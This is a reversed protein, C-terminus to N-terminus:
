SRRPQAERSGRQRKPKRGHFSLVKAGSLGSGEKSSGGTRNRRGPTVFLVPCPCREVLFAELTASSDPLVRQAVSVPVIVLEIKYRRVFRLIEVREVGSLVHFTAGQRDGIMPGYRNRLSREAVVLIEPNLEMAIGPAIIEAHFRYPSHLVHVICLEPSGFGKLMALAVAFARDAAESMDSYFLVREPVWSMDPGRSHIQGAHGAKPEAESAATDKEPRCASAELAV